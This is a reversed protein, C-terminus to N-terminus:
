PQFAVSKSQKRQNSASCGMACVYGRRTLSFVISKRQVDDNSGHLFPTFCGSTQTTHTGHKNMTQKNTCLQFQMQECIASTAGM